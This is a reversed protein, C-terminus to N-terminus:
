LFKKMNVIRITQVHLCVVRSRSLCIPAISIKEFKGNSNYCCFQRAFESKLAIRKLRIVPLILEIISFNYQYLFPYYGM